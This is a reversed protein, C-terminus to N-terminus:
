KKRFYRRYVFIGAIIVIVIAVVIIIINRNKRSADQDAKEAAITPDTAIYNERLDKAANLLGLTTDIEPKYNLYTGYQGNWSRVRFQCIEQRVCDPYQRNSVAAGCTSENLIGYDKPGEFGKCSKVGTPPNWFTLAFQWQDNVKKVAADYNQQAKLVAADLEALTPM